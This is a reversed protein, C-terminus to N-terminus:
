YKQEALKTTSVMVTGEGSVSLRFARIAVDSFCEAIESGVSEVNGSFDVEKDAFIILRGGLKSNYLNKLEFLTTWDMVRTSIARHTAASYGSSARDITSLQVYRPSIWVMNPYGDVTEESEQRDRTYPNIQQQKISGKRYYTYSTSQVVPDVLKVYKAYKGLSVKSDIGYALRVCGNKHIWELAKKAHVHGGNDSSAMDAIKAGPMLDELIPAVLPEGHKESLMHIASRLGPHGGDYTYGLSNFRMITGDFWQKVTQFYKTFQGGYKFPHEKQLGSMIAGVVVDSEMMVYQQKAVTILAEITSEINGSDNFLELITLMTPLTLAYRRYDGDHPGIWVQQGMPDTAHMDQPSASSLWFACDLNLVFIGAQIVETKELPREFLYPISFNSTGANGVNGSCRHNLDITRRIARGSRYILEEKIALYLPSDTGIGSSAGIIIDETWDYQRPTYGFTEPYVKADNGLVLDSVLEEGVLDTIYVQLSLSHPPINNSHRVPNVDPHVDMFSYTGVRNLEFNESFVKFYKINYDYATTIVNGYDSTMSNPVIADEVYAKLEPPIMTPAENIDKMLSIFSTEITRSSDVMWVNTSIEERVETSFPVKDVSAQSTDDSHHVEFKVSGVGDIRPDEMPDGYSGLLDVVKIDTLDLYLSISVNSVDPDIVELEPIESVTHSFADSWFLQNILPVFASVIDSKTTFEFLQLSAIYTDALTPITWDVIDSLVWWGKNPEAYPSSTLRIKTTSYTVLNKLYEDQSMDQMLSEYVSRCEFMSTYEGAIDEQPDNKAAFIWGQPTCRWDFLRLSSATVLNVTTMNGRSDEKKYRFIINVKQGVGINDMGSGPPVLGNAVISGSDKSWSINGQNPYLTIAM